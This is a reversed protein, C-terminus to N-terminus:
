AVRQDPLQAQPNDPSIVRALSEQGMYRRTVQWEDTQEALLTGVLRVIAANNPFIGIVRSRRKIEKNLRELPNTSALQPWHEKPFGMFALVDDEAGDMLASLKPFRDRLKDATERWQARAQGQDEQVFATRIVAAVMPHQRRPVHALANRMFHVRCRQWTAGFVTAIAQKLGEHADSIVLRVGTLGRRMLGRLFDTWFAATEAPGVAMGLTERRGEANVGVAVVVAQSDVTGCERSKVYTADLWVYPWHGGLPRNLFVEVREDLEACLRSVQSKSIGTMGLAQVLDDVKRTSIGKVYAEQVVAVLAQESAKRPELFSPFYSGSRLKPIKLELTGLRTELTRDRYGNRQNVRGDSREHRGAGCRAEAEAEMLRQLALQGLERLLDGDAYKEALEVLAMRDETM